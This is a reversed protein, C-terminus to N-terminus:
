HGDGGALILGPENQFGIGVGRRAAARVQDRARRRHDAAAFDGGSLFHLETDINDFSEGREAGARNQSGASFSAPSNRMRERRVRKRRARRGPRSLAVSSFFGVVTWGILTTM